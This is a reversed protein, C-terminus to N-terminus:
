ECNWGVTRSLLRYEVLQSLLATVRQVAVLHEPQFGPLDGDPQNNSKLQVCSVVGRCANLFQLPVAMLARTQVQLQSDLLKSQQANRAVDNEVFPQETAFVMSILGSGLPQQFQGIIKAAHPGTNFAPELCQEAADVLWITGEHAGAEAFGQEVIRRLLPDLLHEFQAAHIEDGLRNMRETLVSKLGQFAPEPLLNLRASM